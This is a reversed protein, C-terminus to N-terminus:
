CVGIHVTTNNIDTDVWPCVVPCSIATPGYAVAHPDVVAGCNNVAVAVNGSQRFGDFTSANAFRIVASRDCDLVEYFNGLFHDSVVALLQVLCTQKPVYVLAFLVSGPSLSLKCYDLGLLTFFALKEFM